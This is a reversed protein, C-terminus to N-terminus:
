KSILKFIRLHSLFKFPKITWVKFEGMLSDARLSFSDYVQQCFMVLNIMLSNLVILSPVQIKFHFFLQSGVRLSISEDLLESPLMNVNYFFM